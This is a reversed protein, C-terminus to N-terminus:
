LTDPTDNPFNSATPGIGGQAKPDIVAANPDILGRMLGDIRDHNSRLNQGELVMLTARDEPASGAVVSAEFAEKSDIGAKVARAWALLRRTSVGMTLKGADSQSRTLSAYEVMPKVAAAHVGLRRSLMTTEQAVTMFGLKTRLAFRDLFAANVPATDVYRGTDDGCGDTNDAACIFVGPAASVIEGSALWLKRHDLATGLVALTGSRLLTPEDLLIVCRPIRMAATLKGDQWGIRGGDPVPQGILEAPETTREIAIRVFPRGLRAAYQRLGDTKGTGAAGFVWGNLGAADQAALQALLSPSWFYDSDIEPADAYDCVDVTTHDWAWRYATPADSKRLGFAQYLPLKTKVNVSIKRKSKESLAPSVGDTSAEVSVTQTVIRPGRVAAEVFPRVLNPLMGALYPTLHVSAPALAEDLLAQVDGGEFSVQGDVSVPQAEGAEEEEENGEDAKLLAAEVAADISANDAGAPLATIAVSKVGLRWDIQAQGLDFGLAECAERIEPATLSQTRGGWGQATVYDRWGALAKLRPKVHDRFERGLTIHDFKSTM